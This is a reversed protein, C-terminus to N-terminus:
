SAAILGLESADTLEHIIDVQRHFLYKAIARDSIRDDTTISFRCQRPMAENQINVLKAPLKINYTTNQEVDPVM